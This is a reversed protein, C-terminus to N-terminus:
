PRDDVVSEVILPPEGPRTLEVRVACREREHGRTRSLVLRHYLLEGAVAGRDGARSDRDADWPPMESCARPTTIRWRGPLDSPLALPAGAPDRAAFDGEIFGDSRRAWTMTVTPEVFTATITGPLGMAPLALRRPTRSWLWRRSPVSSADADDPAQDRTVGDGEVVIALRTPGRMEQHDPGLLYPLLDYRLGRAVIVEDGVALERHPSAFLRYGYSSPQIAEVAFTARDPEGAVNGTVTVTAKGPALATVLVQGFELRVSFRRPASVSVATLDPIVEVPGGPWGHIELHSGVHVPVATGVLLPESPADVRLLRSGRMECGALAAVVAVAAM